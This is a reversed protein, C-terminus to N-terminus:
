RGATFESRRRHYAEAVLWAKLPRLLLIGLGLTLPLWLLAHLWFPPEYKVEVVLALGVIIFGLIMIALVAPGDGSDHGGLDLGCMTCRARVALLGEFLAGKGCRPCRCRLGTVIPSLIPGAESMPEDM